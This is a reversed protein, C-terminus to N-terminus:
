DAHVTLIWAVVVVHEVAAVVVVVHDSLAGPRLCSRRDLRDLFELDDGTLVVRLISAGGARDDIGHRLRSRVLHTSAHETEELIAAQRRLIEEGLFLPEGLRIRM